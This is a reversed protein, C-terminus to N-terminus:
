PVVSRYPLAIRVKTGRGPASELVVRGGHAESIARVISLGLGAGNSRRTRSTNARWFRDFAHSSEETSMGVGDDDVEMVVDNGDRYGAVTLTADNGAHTLANHLVNNVVQRLRADDGTTTLDPEIATCVKRSPHTVSADLAADTLIGAVDVCERELPRGEDLRALLLLDEVLGAMRASEGGIRRMADSLSEPSDLDGQRYLDAFARISAVPTRLEHSADAVFQRLRDENAQHEDLMVNFARGLHGAETRPNGVRVRRGREGGAIADAVATVEAIPRLGLRLIWWGGLGVALLTVVALGAITLEAQRVTADARDMSVALLLRASDVSNMFLVARWRGGGSLSGVTVIDADIASTSETKPLSPAAAADTGQQIAFTIRSGDAEVRAFYVDSFNERESPRGTPRPSGPPAVRDTLKLAARIRRDVEHQESRAVSHVIVFGGVALVVTVLAAVVALRARLTV